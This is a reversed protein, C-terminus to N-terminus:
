FPEPKSDGVCLEVAHLMAKTIRNASDEDAVTAAYEGAYTDQIDSPLTKGKKRIVKRQTHASTQKTMLLRITFADPYPEADSDPATAALYEANSLVQIEEVERFSLSSTYAYTLDSGRSRLVSTFQCTAPDATVEVTYTGAKMKAELKEKIFKMTVDLSPSDDSPKPPPPVTNKEQALAASVALIPICMSMMFLKM